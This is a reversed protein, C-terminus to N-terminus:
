LVIRSVNDDIKVIIVGHADIAYRAVGQAQHASYLLRGLADYIMVDSEPLTTSVYIAGDAAWCKTDADVVNEGIGAKMEISIRNGPQTTFESNHGLIGVSYSELTQLGEVTYSDVNGVEIDTMGAIPLEEM